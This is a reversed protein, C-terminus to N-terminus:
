LIGSYRLICNQNRDKLCSVPGRYIATSNGLVPTMAIAKRGLIRYERQALVVYLIDVYISLEDNLIMKEGGNVNSLLIDIRLATTRKGTEIPLALYAM